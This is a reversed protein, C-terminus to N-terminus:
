LMVGFPSLPLGIPTSAIYCERLSSQSLPKVANRLESLLDLVTTAPRGGAPSEMKSGAQRSGREAVHNLYLIQGDQRLRFAYGRALAADQDDGSQKSPFSWSFLDPEM